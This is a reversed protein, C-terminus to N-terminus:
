AAVCRFPTRSDHSHRFDLFSFPQAGGKPSRRNRTYVARASMLSTQPKPFRQRSLYTKLPQVVLTTFQQQKQKTFMLSEKSIASLIETQVETGPFTQYLQYALTAVLHRAHNRTPDSNSFLFSALRVDRELCREITSQAIASKGAGAAGSLWLIPKAVPTTIGELQGLIWVMIDDLIKVRTHPHCKPPDFRTASDHFANPTIADTLIDFPPVKRDM